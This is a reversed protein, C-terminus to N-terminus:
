CILVFLFLNTMTLIFDFNTVFFFSKVVDLQDWKKYNDYTHSTPTKKTTKKKATKSPNGITAPTIIQNRKPKNLTEEKMESHTIETILQNRIGPEKNITKKNESQSIPQTDFAEDKKKMKKQWSQIDRMYDYMETANQRIQNQM